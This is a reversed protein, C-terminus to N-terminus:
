QSRWYIVSLQIKYFYNINKSNLDKKPSSKDMIKKKHAGILNTRTDEGTYVTLIEM